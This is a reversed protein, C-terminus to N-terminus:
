NDGVLWKHSITAMPLTSFASKSELIAYKQQLFDGLQSWLRGILLEIVKTDLGLFIDCIHKKFKAARPM